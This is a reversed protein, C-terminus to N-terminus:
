LELWDGAQPQPVHRKKTDRKKTIWPRSMCAYRWEDAAHDEMNTNLDEPRADDHQLVPITRISDVCTSFCAIMAAGDPEDETKLGVLRSRLQDWGGQHGADPVRKNDAKRWSTSKGLDNRSVQAREAAALREIISPGGSEAFM